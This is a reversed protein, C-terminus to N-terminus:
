HKFLLEQLLFVLLNTLLEGHALGEDSLHEVEEVLFAGIFLSCACHSVQDRFNRLTQGLSSHLSLHEATGGVVVTLCGMYGELGDFLTSIPVLNSSIRIFESSHKCALVFRCLVFSRIVAYGKIRPVANSSRGRRFFAVDDVNSNDLDVLIGTVVSVVRGASFEDDALSDARVM